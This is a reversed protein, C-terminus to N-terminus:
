ELIFTYVLNYELGHATSNILRDGNSLDDFPSNNPQVLNRNYIRGINGINVLGYLFPQISKFGSAM